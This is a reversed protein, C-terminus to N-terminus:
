GRLALYPALALLICVLGNKLTRTPLARAIRWGILVGGLEPLGVLLALPGDISGHGLYGATGVVAIVVSQAQAAALAPLLPAGAVVLVPVSLMPGGVGFVGSAVAVGFGITALAPPAPWSGGSSARRERVWVLVAVIAVFLALLIAFGRRPLATNILVGLPTGVVAAVCLVAVARRTAQERLQGSHWYAVSALIGTGVHTIIATGAVTPTDLTTVAFLGITVLVGGPGFATIGVGGILGLLALLALAPVELGAV